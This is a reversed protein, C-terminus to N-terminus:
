AAVRSPSALQLGSVAYTGATRLLQISNPDVHIQLAGLLSKGVPKPLGLPDCRWGLALIQTLWGLEAVGTYSSIGTLLGYEILATALRDRVERRQRARLRPSLCLRTIERISNGTPVIGDCLHPFLDGLIHPRDTRLLRVSGLHQGTGRDIVVLYEADGDDFQDREHAGDAPIDWKLLDIFIKKRDRFMADLSLAHQARNDFNIVSVM